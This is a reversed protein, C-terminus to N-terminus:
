HSAPPEASIVFRAWQITSFHTVRHIWWGRTYLHRYLVLFNDGAMDTSTVLALPAPWDVTRRATVHRRDGATSHASSLSTTATGATRSRTQRWRAVSATTGRASSRYPGLGPLFIVNTSRKQEPPAGSRRLVPRHETCAEGRVDDASQHHQRASRRCRRRRRWHRSHESARAPGRVRSM